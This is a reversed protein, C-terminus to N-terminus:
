EESHHHEKAEKLSEHRTSKAHEPPGYVTYLKLVANGTNELHHWYGAPILIAWDDGVTKDFDLHDKTKGMRVHAEGQEIRIFQDRSKHMELTIEEGPDLSMLVLQIHEGTWNVLRYDENDITAQEMDLTWPKKGMDQAERHLSTKETPKNNTEEKDPAKINCGSIQLLILISLISRFVGNKTILTSKM